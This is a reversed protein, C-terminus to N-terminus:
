SLPKRSDSLYDLDLGETVLVRSFPFNDVADIEARVSGIIGAAVVSRAKEECQAAWGDALLYWGAQREAETRGEAALYNVYRENRVSLPDAANGAVVSLDVEADLDSPLVDAELIVILTLEYPTMGWNECHVRISQVDSLVRGLPSNEKRAKKRLVQVLPEFCAVVEDPFAFRGFRRAVAFAFERKQKDNEVGRRRLCLVLATKDVSVIADLDVFYGPGLAPVPVYQTRKGAAAEKEISGALQVVPAIQVTRRSPQAADCTQSVIAALREGRPRPMWLHDFVFTQAGDFVDGQAWSRCGDGLDPLPELAAAGM